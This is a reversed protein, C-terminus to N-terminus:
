PFNTGIITLTTGGGTGGRTPSISTITATLSSKYIYPTTQVLGGVTVTLNCTTDSLSFTAAPTVCTLQTNSVIVVSQCAQNCLTVAVNSGNFGDGFITITQGGGYSGQSPTVNNVQLAYQFQINSNSKGVSAVNVLVSQYGAASSETTCTILTTSVSIITCSIGGVSVSTTGNVFNSGTITLTEGASGSTPNLSTVTPTITSSYALSFTNPFNIGNSTIHITASSASSGQAPIICQIQSSTTQIIPCSNLGVTVQVNSTSSSFGNGNITLFSGGYIGSTTTSVSSVTPV